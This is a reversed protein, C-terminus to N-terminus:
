HRISKVGAGIEKNQTHKMFSRRISEIYNTKALVSQTLKKM